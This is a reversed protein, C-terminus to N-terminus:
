RKIPPGATTPPSNTYSLVTGVKNASFATNNDHAMEPYTVIANPRVFRPGFAKTPNGLGSLTAIEDSTLAVNWTAADSVYGTWFQLVSTTARAGITTRNVAAPVRSSTNTGESIGNVYIVRTTADIGVGCLHTWANIPLPTVGSATSSGSTDGGRFGPLASSNIILQYGVNNNANSCAGYAVAQVNTVTPYVWASITFPYNTPPKEEIIGYQTSGNLSTAGHSAVTALLLALFIRM